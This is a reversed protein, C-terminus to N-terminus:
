GARGIFNVTYLDRRQPPLRGCLTERIDPNSHQSVIEDRPERGNHRGSQPCGRDAAAAHDSGPAGQEM